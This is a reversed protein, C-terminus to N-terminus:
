RGERELAKRAGSRTEWCRLSYNHPKGTYVSPGFNIHYRAQGFANTFKEIQPRTM